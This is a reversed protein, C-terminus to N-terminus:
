MKHVATYPSKMDRFINNKSKRERFIYIQFTIERMAAMNIKTATRECLRM